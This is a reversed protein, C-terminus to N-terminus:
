HKSHKPNPIACCITCFIVPVQDQAIRYFLSTQKSIVAKRIDKRTDSPPFMNPFAAIEELLKETTDLLELAADLGFHQEVYELLAAYDDKASPAWIVPLSM